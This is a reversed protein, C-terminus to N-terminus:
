LSVEWEIGRANMERRLQAESQFQIAQIGALQAAEVNEIRDDAFFIREPAVGAKEIALRYIQQDPKMCGVQYSLLREDVLELIPFEKELYEFHIENTNSFLIIRKRQRLDRLFKESILPEPLFMAGWLHRFEELSIEMKLAKSVRGYYEHSSLKGTEFEFILRPDSLIEAVESLPLPSVQLIKQAALAYDFDILVKGLDLYVVEIM